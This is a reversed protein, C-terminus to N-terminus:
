DEMRRLAEARLLMHAVQQDTTAGFWGDAGMRRDMDRLENLLEQATMHAIVAALGSEAGEERMLRALKVTGKIRAESARKRENPFFVSLVASRRGGLGFPTTNDELVFDFYGSPAWSFRGSELGALIFERVAVVKRDTSANLAQAAQHATTAYSM